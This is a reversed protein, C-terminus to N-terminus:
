ALTKASSFAEPLVGSSIASNRLLYDDARKPPNKNKMWARETQGVNCCSSILCRTWIVGVTIRACGTNTMGAPRRLKSHAKEYQYGYLVQGYFGKANNVSAAANAIMKIHLRVHTGMHLFRRLLGDLKDSLPEPAACDVSRREHCIACSPQSVTMIGPAMYWYRESGACIGVASPLTGTPNEAGLCACFSIRTTFSKPYM